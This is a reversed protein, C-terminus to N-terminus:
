HLGAHWREPSRPPRPELRGVKLLLEAEEPPVPPAFLNGQGFKCGLELLRERQLETEVGEAVVGLGLSQALALVTRVVEYDGRRAGIKRVFSRDIKLGTLPLRRLYALSGYGTGFDDMELQVGAQSLRELQRAPGGGGEVLITETIELRLCAAPLRSRHLAAMVSELLGAHALQRGSLNVSVKVPVERALALQWARAQRCAERLVWNGIPVIMDTEEALPIFEMPGLEGREPYAWRLLAEFGEVRGNELTVIPQWALRLEDRGLAGRLSTELRSREQARDRMAPHFLESRSRGRTKASYMAMEADHVLDEAAQYRPSGLAVGVSGTVFVEQGYVSFTLRLGDHIRSAVQAAEADDRVEELFLAFEDGGWRAVLDGPRTVAELRRAIAELLRDGAVHGMSENVTKFHDCDMFAVAMRYDPDRAARHLAQKVHELFLTRNPLNTLRDHLLGHRLQSEALRAETVDRTLCWARVLKGETIIPSCSLLVDRLSGDRHRLRAEVDLLTEGAHLRRLIDAATAPDAHFETVSRRVYDAVEYGLLELAARNARLIFGDADLEHLAVPAREFLRATEERSCALEDRTSAHAREEDGLRDLLGLVLGAIELTM